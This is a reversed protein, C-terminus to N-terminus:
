LVGNISTILVICNFELLLRFRCVVMAPIKDHTTYM